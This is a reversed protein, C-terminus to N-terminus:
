NGKKAEEAILYRHANAKKLIIKIESLEKAHSQELQLLKIDSENKIVRVIDASKEKDIKDIRLSNYQFLFVSALLVVGCFKWLKTDFSDRTEKTNADCPEDHNEHHSNIKDHLTIIEQDKKSIASRHADGLHQIDQSLAEVKTDTVALKTIAESMTAVVSIVDSVKEALSGVTGEVKIMALELKTLKEDDPM